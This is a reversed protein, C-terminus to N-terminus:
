PIVVGSTTLPSFSLGANNGAADKITAGNLAISSAVAIGDLDTDGRVITYRFLLATATSGNAFYTANRATSGITLAITPTGGTTVITVNENFTVTFDLNQGSKYSGDAPKSVSSIAPGTNDVTFATGPGAAPATNGATDTATGAAISIGLTGDGAISSLTVTRTTGSGSVGISATATGTANLTIDSASLTSSSFATDAYTVTYTVPGSSARTASPAGISVTPPTNDVTFTAGSTPAATIVNGALDTGTSLAVTATGNGAGVVYSGTYHTADVKTMSTAPWTNAGSVSFKPAPADAMAENFTATLTLTTGATVAGTPSYAITATPATNDV